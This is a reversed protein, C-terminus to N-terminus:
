PRVPTPMAPLVGVGGPQPTYIPIGEPVLPDPTPDPTPEPTPEPTPSAPPEEGGTPIPTPTPQTGTTQPPATYGGTPSPEPDTGPTPSPEETAPPEPTGTPSPTPSAAAAANRQILWDNFRTDALVGGTAGLTGDSNVYMIDLEERRLPDVYPNFHENVVDVLEDVNPVVYSQRGATRTMVYKGTCPMTIFDVHEMSLREGNSNGVLAQQAFWVVNGLTLSEDVKVNDLFVKALATITSPDINQLCQEITAKLFAQQTKIRGLDGEPYGGFYHGADDSDLRYRVLQMAQDGNLKQYGKQLDIKFNQSLDNYYMRQPVEFWVGGIADVLEGVANWEITVTFDPQFGVLEGIERKLADMGDSGGGYVNYVSNIRKIDWSVNVMTDRPISMVNLAQNPIDYSALLMTDTNGGGYTDRGVVLFTWFDDKRDSPNQPFPTQGTVPDVTVTDDPRRTPQTPVTPRRVLAVWVSVVALVLAAIVAIVIM